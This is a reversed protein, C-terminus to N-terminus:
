CHHAVTSSWVTEMCLEVLETSSDGPLALFSNWEFRPSNDRIYLHFSHNSFEKNGNIFPQCSLEGFFRFAGLNKTQLGCCSVRGGVGLTETKQGLHMKLFSAYFGTRLCLNLLGQKPYKGCTSSNCSKACM